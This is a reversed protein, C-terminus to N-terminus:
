DILGNVFILRGSKLAIYNFGSNKKIAFVYNEEFLGLYYLM